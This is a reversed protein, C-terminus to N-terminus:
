YVRSQYSERLSENYRRCWLLAELKSSFVEVRFEVKVIYKNNKITITFPVVSDQSVLVNETKTVWKM